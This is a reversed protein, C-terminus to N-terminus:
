TLAIWILQLVTVVLVLVTARKITRVIDARDEAELEAESPAQPGVAPRSHQVLPGQYRM